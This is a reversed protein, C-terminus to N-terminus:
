KTQFSHAWALQQSVALAGEVGNPIDWWLPKTDDEEVGSQWQASDRMILHKSYRTIWPAHDFLLGILLKQRIKEEPLSISSRGKTRAEVTQLYRKRHVYTSFHPLADFRDAVVALNALNAIPPLAPLDLGHLARLFDATLNQISSVRSIRGVNVIAIKPLVYAPADAINSHGAVKLADLAASLKQGESFRDSLLNEFYPSNRQLMMSDVRFLFPASDDTQRVDLILDGAVIVIPDIANAM